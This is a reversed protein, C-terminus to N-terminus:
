ISIDIFRSLIYEDNLFDFVEKLLTIALRDVDKKRIVVEDM